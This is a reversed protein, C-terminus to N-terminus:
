AMITRIARPAASYKIVNIDNVLSSASARSVDGIGQWSGIVSVRKQDFTTRIPAVIRSFQESKHPGFSTRWAGLMNEIPGQNANLKAGYRKADAGHVVGM